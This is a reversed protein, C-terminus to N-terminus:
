TRFSYSRYICSSQQKTVDQMVTNFLIKWNLEPTEYDDPNVGINEMRKLVKIEGMYKDADDSNMRTLSPLNNSTIISQCDEKLIEIEANQADYSLNNIIQEYKSKLEDDNNDAKAKKSEYTNVVSTTQGDPTYYKQSTINLIKDRAILGIVLALYLVAVIAVIRYKKKKNKNNNVIIM